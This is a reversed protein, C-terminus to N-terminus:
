EQSIIHVQLHHKPSSEAFFSPEKQFREAWFSVQSKRYRCVDVIGTGVCCRSWQDPYGRCGTSTRRNADLPFPKGHESSSISGLCVSPITM